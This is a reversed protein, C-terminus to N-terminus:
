LDRACRFGLKPRRMTWGWNGGRYSVLMDAASSSSDGGRAIRDTTPSSLIACNVCPNPYFSWSQDLVLERAGGVMNMHGWKAPMALHAADFTTDTPPSSWPYARQEAGGAAAYNWEAETPLRGGDWACFAFAEFWTVCTMPNPNPCDPYCSSTWNGACAAGWLSALFHLYDENLNSNWASQWGSGPIHPNAGSGAAPPNVQTGQGDEIFRNFRSVSVEYIDLGFDSVTAPNSQDLYTVGDYSRYFTGGPVTGL